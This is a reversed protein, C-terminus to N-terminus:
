NGPYRVKPNEFRFSNEHEQFFADFEQSAHELIKVTTLLYTDLLEEREKPNVIIELCTSVSGSSVCLIGQISNNRQIKNDAEFYGYPDLTPVPVTDTPQLIYLRISDESTTNKYFLSDPTLVPQGKYMSYTVVGRILGDEELTKKFSVLDDSGDTRAIQWIEDERDVFFSLSLNADDVTPFRSLIYYEHSRLLQDILARNAKQLSKGFTNEAISVVCFAAVTMILAGIIWSTYKQVVRLKRKWSRVRDLSQSFLQWLGMGQSNRDVLGYDLGKNAYNVYVIPIESYKHDIKKLTDLSWNYVNKTLFLYIGDVRNDEFYQLLDAQNSDTCVFTKTKAIRFRESIRELDYQIDFSNDHLLLVEINNRERHPTSPLANTFWWIWFDTVPIPRERKKAGIYLVTFWTFFSISAIALIIRLYELDAIDNRLLHLAFLSTLSFLLGTLPIIPNELGSIETPVEINNLRSESVQHESLEITLYGNKNDSIYYSLTNLVSIDVSQPDRTRFLHKIKDVSFSILANSEAVTLRIDQLINDYVSDGTYIIKEKALRSNFKQWVRDVLIKRSNQDLEIQFEPCRDLFEDRTEDSRLIYAYLANLRTTQQDRVFELLGTAKHRYCLTKLSGWSVDYEKDTKKAYSKYHHVLNDDNEIKQGKISDITELHSVISHFLLDYSKKVSSSPFPQDPNEILFRDELATVLFHQEGENLTTYHPDENTSTLPM